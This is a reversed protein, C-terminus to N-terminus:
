VLVAEKGVIIGEEFCIRVLHVANRANLKDMANRRHTNVTFTSIYLKISILVWRRLAMSLSLALFATCRHTNVTFTSIYLKISIEDSSLGQSLADIIEIERETLITTTIMNTANTMNRLDSLISERRFERQSDGM